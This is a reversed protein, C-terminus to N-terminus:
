DASEERSFAAFEDRQVQITGGCEVRSRLESLKAADLSLGGGGEMGDFSGLVLTSGESEAASVSACSNGCFDLSECYSRM